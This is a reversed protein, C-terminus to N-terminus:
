LCMLAAASAIFVCGHELLNMTWTCPAAELLQFAILTTSDAAQVYM